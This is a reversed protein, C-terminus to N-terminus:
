AGGKKRGPLGSAFGAAPAAARAGRKPADSDTTSGGGSRTARQPAPAAPPAERGSQSSTTASGSSDDSDTDSSSSASSASAPGGAAGAAADRAARRKARRTAAAADRAAARAAHRAAEKDACWGVAANAEAAAAALEPAASALARLWKRAMGRRGERVAPWVRAFNAASCYNQTIAVSDSLNLVAHWWGGPLFVTEGPRQTFEIAQAAVAPAAARLRPLHLTFYDSPEDDEGPRALARARIAERPVGPPFLVWRKAGSILTNWASTALPDIHIGTGSRAPGLLFWRYPPRRHEGVLRLLDERFYPPVEYDRRIGCDRSGSEFMSDFVYLPSDDRQRAMYRLFYKLKMKVPYGDDDEGVKFRRHRYAAYLASPEWAGRSAAWGDACGTIVVPLNPAEYRAIFDAVSLRAADERALTGVAVPERSAAPDYARGARAWDHLALDGRSRRKAADVVRTDHRTPEGHLGVSAQWPCGQSSSTM